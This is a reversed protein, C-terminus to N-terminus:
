GERCLSYANLLLTLVTYSLSTFLSGWARSSKAQIIFTAKIKHTRDVHPTWSLNQLKMSQLDTFSCQQYWPCISCNLEHNCRAWGLNLKLPRRSVYAGKSLRDEGQVHQSFLWHFLVVSNIQLNFYLHIQLFPLQRKLLLAHLWQLALMQKWFETVWYIICQLMKTRIM